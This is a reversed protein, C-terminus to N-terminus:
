GGFILKRCTLAATFLMCIRIFGFVYDLNVYDSLDYSGFGFGDMDLTFNPKRANSLDVSGFSTLMGDYLLDKTATLRKGMENVLTAKDYESKYETKSLDLKGDVGTVAETLKDVAGAADGGGNGGGNNSGIKNSIGNLANLLEKQSNMLQNHYHKDDDTTDNIADVIDQTSTTQLKKLEEWIEIQKNTGDVIKKLQEKNFKNSTQLEDVVKKFNANNDENLGALLKNIQKNLLLIQKADSSQLTPESPVEVNAKDSNSGSVDPAEDPKIPKTPDVMEHDKKGYSGGHCEFKGNPAYDCKADTDLPAGNDPKGDGDIDEPCLYQGEIDKCGSPVEDPIDGGATAGDTDCSDGTIVVTGNCTGNSILCLSVAELQLECGSSCFTPRSGYKFYDWSHKKSNGKLPECKNEKECRGTAPNFPADSPCYSNRYALWRLSHPGLRCSGSSCSVWNPWANKGCQELSDRNWRQGASVSCGISSSVETIEVIQSYASSSAVLM